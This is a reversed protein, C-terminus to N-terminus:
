WNKGYKALLLSSTTGLVTGAAGITASTAAAQGAAAQYVGTKRAIDARKRLDNAQVRYGWAERATNTRITQVDLEALREADHRVDMASGSAIDINSAAYGASQAGLVQAVQERYRAEEQQGRAEADRGQQEAVGANVDNLAAESNAAAQEAEGARRSARGARVQQAASVGSAVLSSILFATFAAM